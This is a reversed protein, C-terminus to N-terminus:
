PDVLWHEKCYVRNWVYYVAVAQAWYYNLGYQKMVYKMITKFSQKEGNWADIIELWDLWCRGTAGRIVRDSIGRQGTIGGIM